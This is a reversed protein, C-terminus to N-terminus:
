ELVPEIDEEVIMYQQEAPAGEDDESVTQSVDSM